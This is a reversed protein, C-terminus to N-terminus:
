SVKETNLSMVIYSVENKLFEGGVTIFGFRHYFNIADCRADCWVENAEKEAALKLLHDLLLTGIGKNQFEPLIAFKRFQVRKYDFFASMVGVLQDNIKAGLHIGNADEPLACESLELSPWLVVQRIYLTESASIEYINIM